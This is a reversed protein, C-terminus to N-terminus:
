ARQGHNPNMTKNEKGRGPKNNVITSRAKRHLEQHTQRDVAMLNDLSWNAKDHDIHHLELGDPVPGHANVWVLRHLLYAKERGDETVTVCAYGKQNRWVPYTKNNMNFESKM